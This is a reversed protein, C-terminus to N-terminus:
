HEIVISGDKIGNVAEVLKLILECPVDVKSASKRIYDNVDLHGIAIGTGFGFESTIGYSYIGPAWIGNAMRMIQSEVALDVRKLGSGVIVDAHEPATLAQDVDTGFAYWNPNEEAATFVGLHSKGAAGYIYDAGANYMERALEAGLTPNAWEGVYRVLVKVNPNVWQAGQTYGKMFGIILPIEMGGEFGIINTKTLYGAAVGVLFAEEWDNTVVSAVNPQDVVMDVIVFKQDPYQPAVTELASAQDFGICVIIDYDGSDAFQLQYGEYESIDSPEVYDLVDDVTVGYKAAIQAAADSAGKFSQDNFSKDGLGGTALILGVKPYDAAFVGVVLVGVLLVAALIAGLKKM